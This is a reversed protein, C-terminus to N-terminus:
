CNVTLVSPLSWHKASTERLGECKASQIEKIWFGRQNKEKNAMSIARTQYFDAVVAVHATERFNPSPATPIDIVRLAQRCLAKLIFRKTGRFRQFNELDLVAVSSLEWNLLLRFNILSRCNKWYRTLKKWYRTVM